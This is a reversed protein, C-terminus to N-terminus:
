SHSLKEARTTSAAGSAKNVPPVYLTELDQRITRAALWYHIAAWVCTLSIVILARRLGVARADSCARAFADLLVGSPRGRPCLAYDGSAFASDAFRESILGVLTPGLGIGVLGLIFNFVFMSSARMSAGVMNAGLALTPTWYVFLFIHGIALVVAASLVTPQSFGLMFLPCALLLTLAPGWAVQWSTYGAEALGANIESIMQEKTAIRNEEVYALTSLTMALGVTASDYTTPM